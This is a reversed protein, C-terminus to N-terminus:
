FWGRERCVTAVRDVAIVLGADRMSLKKSGSLNFCEIFASTLKLDLKSLVEGMDWYYNSNSQVQEFYSCVVGGANALLDPIFFVGRDILRREAESTTPGNAGEALIKVRDSIVDVARKTIQNELAAPILIDVEQKLWAEGALVEYGTAEAGARDISGFRDALGRLEGLDIGEARRYTLASASTHDWCAVCTVTGGIRQYLEITHQAVNGFGQVAATTTDPALGLEKLAERLMYVLGYGTAQQRGLSGGAHTPKGTIAGPSRGARLSEFEDLMWMMHQAQTMIDPAPVDIGPGLDRVAQRVFARCVREQEDSSLMHPDCIVGGMSGGLPLDVMATKWTMWMALARGTDVTELPHFRVGGWAPGRADNHVVRFGRYVTLRGSDLRVPVAFLYERMPEGLLERAGPQLGMLDAIHEFQQRAMSFPNFAEDTVAPPSVIQSM